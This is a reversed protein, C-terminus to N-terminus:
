YMFASFGDARSFHGLSSMPRPSINGSPPQFGLAALMAQRQSAAMMILQDVLPCAPFAPIRSHDVETALVFTCYPVTGLFAMHASQAPCLGNCHMPCLGYVLPRVRPLCGMAM